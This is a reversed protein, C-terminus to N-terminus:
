LESKFSGRRKKTAPSKRISERIQKYWISMSDATLVHCEQCRKARWSDDKLLEGDNIGQWAHKDGGESKNQREKWSSGQLAHFILTVNGRGKSQGANQGIDWDRPTTWCAKDNKVNM